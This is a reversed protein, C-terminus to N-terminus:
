KERTKPKKTLDRELKKIRENPEYLECFENTPVEIFRSLVYEGKDLARILPCRSSYRCYHCKDKDSFVLIYTQHFEDYELYM